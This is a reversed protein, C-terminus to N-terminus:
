KVLAAEFEALRLELELRLVDDDAKNLRQSVFQALKRAPPQIRTLYKQDVSNNTTLTQLKKTYEKLLPLLSRLMADPDDRSESRSLLTRITAAAFEPNQFQALLQEQAANDIENM